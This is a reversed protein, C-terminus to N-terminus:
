AHLPARLLALRLGLPPGFPVLSASADLLAGPRCGLARAMADRNGGHPEPPPGSLPEPLMLLPTPCPSVDDLSRAAAAQM